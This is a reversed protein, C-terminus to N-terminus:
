ADIILQLTKAVIDEIDRVSEPDYPLKVLREVVDFGLLVTLLLRSKARARSNTGYLRSLPDNLRAEVSAHVLHGVTKSQASRLLILLPDVEPDTGMKGVMMSALKAGWQAQDINLLASADPQAELVAEFLGQKNGFYRNVLSPNVGSAQAIERVGVDDFGAATFARKAQYLLVSRTDEASYRRKAETKNFDQAVTPGFNLLDIIQGSVKWM